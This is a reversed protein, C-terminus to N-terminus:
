AVTYHVAYGIQNTNALNVILTADVPGTFPEWHALAYGVYLVTGSSFKVTFLNSATDDPNAIISVWFVTIAKGAPPTLIVNDGAASLTGGVSSKGGGFRGIIAPLDVLDAGTVANRIVGQDVEYGAPIAPFTV